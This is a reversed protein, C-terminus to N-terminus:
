SRESIEVNVRFEVNDIYHEDESLTKLYEKFEKTKYKYFNSYVSIIDFNNEKSIKVANEMEDKIKDIIRNRLEETIVVGQSYLEEPEMNEKNIEIIRIDAKLNAVYIPKEKEFFVQTKLKKKVIEVMVNTNEYYNDNVGEIEVIGNHSENDFFTFSNTEEKKLSYYIKGNKIILTKGNNVPIKDESGESESGISGTEGGGSPKKGEVDEKKMLEAVSVISCGSKSLYQEYFDGITLISGYLQIDKVDKNSQQMLFSNGELNITALLFDKATANTNIININYTNNKTRTIYDFMNTLNEDKLSDSFVFLKCHTFGLHRGLFLIVKDVALSFSKDKMSAVKLVQKFQSEPTPVLYQISVEFDNEVKDVGIATVIIDSQSQSPKSIAVPLLFVFIILLIILIKNQWLYKM